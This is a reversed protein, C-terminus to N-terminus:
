KPCIKDLRSSHAGSYSQADTLRQEDDLGIKSADKSQPGFGTKKYIAAAQEMGSFYKQLTDKLQPAAVSGTGQRVEEVYQQLSDGYQGPKVDPASERQLEHLTAIMIVQRVQQCEAAPAVPEPDMPIDYNGMVNESAMGWSGTLALGIGVCASSVCRKKKGPTNMKKM